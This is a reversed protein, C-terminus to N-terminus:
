CKIDVRRKKQVSILQYSVSNEKITCIYVASSIVIVRFIVKLCLMCATIDCKVCSRITVHVHLRDPFESM